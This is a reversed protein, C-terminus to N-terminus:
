PNSRPALISSPTAFFQKCRMMLEKRESSWDGFFQELQDEDDVMYKLDFVFKPIKTWRYRWNRSLISTRVAYKIPVLSLIHEIISSPINNLGDLDDNAIRKAEM